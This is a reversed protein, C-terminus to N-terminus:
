HWRDDVLSLWNISHNSIIYSLFFNLLEKKIKSLNFIFFNTRLSSNSHRGDLLGSYDARLRSLYHDLLRDMFSIQICRGISLLHNYSIFWNLSGLHIDLSWLLLYINLSRLFSRLVYISIRLISLNYLSHRLYCSYRCNLIWLSIM